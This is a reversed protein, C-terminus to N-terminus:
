KYLLHKNSMVCKHYGYLNTYILKLLIIFWSIILVLFYSSRDKLKHLNKVGCCEKAAQKDQTGTFLM